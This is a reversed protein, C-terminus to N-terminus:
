LAVEAVAAGLVFGEHRLAPTNYRLPSTREGDRGSYRFVCDGAATDWEMTPGLRPYIDGRGEALWCFKLSSGVKLRSAVPVGTLFAELEPSPHSRSELVVLPTGAPAPFSQLRQLPGDDTQKWAGLGRGALYLLNLVPAFVAGLVPVGDEVLAVNVTFEGNRTLFEKTGDLPDVLWFSHWSQREQFAPVHGEESVVPIDPTWETLLRVIVDHAAKDALTLPTRDQKITVQGPDGYYGMIAAGAARVIAALRDLARIDVDAL